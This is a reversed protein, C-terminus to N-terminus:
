PKNWSRGAGMWLCLSSSLTSVGHLEKMIAKLHLWLQAPEHRGSLAAHRSPHQAPFSPFPSSSHQLSPSLCRPPWKCPTHSWIYATYCEKQQKCIKQSLRLQKKFQALHLVRSLGHLRIKLIITENLRPIIKEYHSDKQIPACKLQSHPPNLQWRRCYIVEPVAHQFMLFLNNLMLKRITSRFLFM